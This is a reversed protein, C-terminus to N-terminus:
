MTYAKVRLQQMVALFDDTGLNTDDEKTRYGSNQQQREQQQQSGSQDQGQQYWQKDQSPELVQVPQHVTSEIMSRIEGTNSLLMSQTKPNAAAIEVTLAGNEVALKVTVKGLNKPFLDMQFQPNGAKYNVSIQDAVQHCVTKATSSAADSIKIIVNGSQMFNSFSTPTQSSDAAEDTAKKQEAVMVPMGQSQLGSDMTSHSDAANPQIATGASNAQTSVPVSQLTPSQVTRSQSTNVTVLPMVVAKSAGQEANAAAPKLPIALAPQQMQASATKETTSVGAQPLTNQLVAGSIKSNQPSMAIETTGSATQPATDTIGQVPPTTSNATVPQGDQAPQLQQFLFVLPSIDAASTQVDTPDTKQESIKGKDTNQKGSITKSNQSKNMLGNAKQMVAQFSEGEKGQNSPPAAQPQASPQPTAINIQQIM